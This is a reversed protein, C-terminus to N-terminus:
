RKRPEAAQGPGILAGVQKNCTFFIANEGVPLLLGYDLAVTLYLSMSPKSADFYITPVVLNSSTVVGV